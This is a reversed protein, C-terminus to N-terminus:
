SNKKRRIWGLLGLASGFLWAAAPIPVVTRDAFLEGTESYFNDGLIELRATNWSDITTTGPGTASATVNLGVTLAVNPAIDSVATEGFIIFYLSSPDDSIINISFSGLPDGTGLFPTPTEFIVSTGDYIVNQRLSVEDISSIMRMRAEMESGGVGSFSGHVHLRYEKTTTDVFDIVLISTLFAADTKGWDSTGNGYDIGQAWAGVDGLPISAFGREFTENCESFPQLGSDHLGHECDAGTFTFAFVSNAFFTGVLLPIAIYKSKM